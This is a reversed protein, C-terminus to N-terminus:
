RVARVSHYYNFDNSLCFGYNFYVVWFGSAVILDSTWIWMQTKDFKPDIYIDNDSKVPEM